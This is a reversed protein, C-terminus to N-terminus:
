PPVPRPGRAPHPWPARDQQPARLLGGRRGAAAAIDAGQRVRARRQRGPVPGPAPLARGAPLGPGRGPRERGHRQPPAAPENPLRSMIRYEHEAVQRIKARATASAGPPSVLFRIRARDTTAVRHFAPWDQWGDGEGLPDEDIVWSGAERQRRQVVGIREMLAAVIDSQNPGVSQHPTAAELVRDSIGPLGTTDETDDLAFLDLRSSPPLECRFGPHHLFVSEQVFPVVNKPDPITTHTEQSWHLLEDRLKSALRQAKRRALKLPSDEARHGDRRWTLDDGRLTGAYYKLEILHLRRRGLVLLDVEHWKGHGDRFEFNSWARFPPQDPLLDHVINLGEAEHTFQSPTVEIWRQVQQAM